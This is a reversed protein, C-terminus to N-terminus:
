WAVHKLYITSLPGIRVKISHSRNHYAKEESELLVNRIGKGGYEEKDTNFVEEYQGEEPIGIRYEEQEERSFNSIISIFTYLFYICLVSVSVM